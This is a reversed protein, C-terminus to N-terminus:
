SLVELRAKVEKLDATDLGETVRARPQRSPAFQRGIFGGM